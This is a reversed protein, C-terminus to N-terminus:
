PLFCAVDGVRIPKVSAQLAWKRQRGMFGSDERLTLTVKQIDNRISLGASSVRDFGFAKTEIVAMETGAWTQVCIQPGLVFRVLRLLLAAWPIVYDPPLGAMAPNDSCMGLLAFVKDRRETAEYAHRMDIPIGLPAIALSDQDAASGAHRARSILSRILYTVPRISERLDHFDKDPLQLLQLGLSFM